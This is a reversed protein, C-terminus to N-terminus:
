VRVRRGRKASEAAAFGVRLTALDSNLRAIHDLRGAIADLFDQCSGRVGWEEAFTETTREPPTDWVALSTDPATTLIAVSGKLGTLWFGRPLGKGQECLYWQICSTAGGAHGMCLTGGTIGLFGPHESSPRSEDHAFVWVVEGLLRRYYEIHHYHYAFFPSGARAPDMYWVGGAEPGFFAVRSAASTLPGLRDLRARLYNFMMERIITNGLMLVRGSRGAARRLSAAERRNVCLPYEVLAHRGQALAELAFPAHLDNPLCLVVADAEKLLTGYDTFARGGAPESLAAARERDRSCVGAVTTGPMAAFAKVREKAM